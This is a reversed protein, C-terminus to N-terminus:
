RRRSNKRLPKRALFYRDYGRRAAPHFPRVDVGDWVKISSFSTARLAARIEKETWCVNEVREHAHRWLKGAPLFWEFDLVAQHREPFWEGHFVLKLKLTEIWHTRTYQERLSSCTNIDFLFRGDPELAKWVSRLTQRLSAPRPLHNLVAFECTILEVPQPLRFNRMDARLVRIPLGEERAKARVIRCFTPSLDVAYVQVGKRAFYLATEGSGCGLDCMSQPHSLARGLINWRARQNMQAADEQIDDYYRALLNYPAPQNKKKM